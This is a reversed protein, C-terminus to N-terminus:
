MDMFSEDAQFAVGVRDENRWAVRCLRSPPILMFQDPVIFGAPIALLAGGKSINIITCDCQVSDGLTIEASIRVTKRPDDKRREDDIYGFDPRLSVRSM